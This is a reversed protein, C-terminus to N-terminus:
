ISFLEKLIKITDEPCTVPHGITRSDEYIEHDNGGKYTKDGFFHIEKFGAKEVHKLAYTKDWGLPRSSFETAM